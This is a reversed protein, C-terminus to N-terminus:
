KGIFGSHAMFIFNAKADKSPIHGIINECNFTPKVNTFRGFSKNQITPTMIALTCTIISFIIILPSTQILHFQETLFNQSIVYFVCTLLLLTGVIPSIVRFVFNIPFNSCKFEEKTVKVEM